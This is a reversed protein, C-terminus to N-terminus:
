RPLGLVNQMDYFGPRQKVVWKVAKLAGLAFADRTHARHILEIREGQTAFIVTHEGVIDGARVAFIGIEEKKRAGLVGERGYIAVQNLDRNLEESIIKALKMATGSPADKKQNHHAEIIEVDYDSIVRATEKALRFLLNVGISMNPSFVLPVSRSVEKIKEVETESFGTTGIVMAKKKEKVLSLHELTAQPNTFEVLVDALSIIERLDSYIKIGLSMEKGIEPHDKRELGAVIEIEKDEKALSFIRSGMRGCIGSIVLKVM